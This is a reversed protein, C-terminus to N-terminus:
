KMLTNIYKNLALKTVSESNCITQVNIAAAASGVFGAVEIPFNKCLLMSAIALFSDGAGVRDLVSSSLAPVEHFLGSKSKGIILGDKGRTVAIFDANLRSCIQRGLVELNETKNHCALRLEPENLAIFKAATYRTISHYGRNGSNIQTNVALFKSAQSIVFALEDTIFGNGYDAVIVLDYKFLNENLWSILESHYSPLEKQNKTFYVEFFKSLDKDVFREKRITVSNKEEFFFTEVGKNLNQTVFDKESNIRGLGTVLSVNGSFNAVHNAVALAGGAYKESRNFQVALANGKGTTGLPDVFHYQDIITEGIVLVKLDALSEISSRVESSSVTGKFTDLYQKTEENFVDFYTNLLNSSSYVAGDSYHIKGGAKEIAEKELLINGTLDNKVTSYELGKSYIDPLLKNIINVATTAFNIAVFDVCELAAITQCRINQAFVPRDPGKNVYQDATVTVILIDGNAKSNQLHEIHGAHILDFTGHCLIIKIGQEKLEQVIESLEDLTKIKM